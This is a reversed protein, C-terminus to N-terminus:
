MTMGDKAKPNAVHNVEMWKSKILAKHDISVKTTLGQVPCEDYNPFACTGNKVCYVEIFENAWPHVEIVSKKMAKFVDQYEGQTRKCLRLEAMHSLTRLNCGMIINTCINTPLIGRADQVPVGEDIAQAYLDLNREIGDVDLLLSKTSIYKANRVDVTRQSEQAYSANRTRVLQHTFARSVGQIEFIYNAFEWSSQITHRMYNLHEMKKEYSWDIIDHLSQAGQLRTNKTYLLIELANPQYDILTVKV